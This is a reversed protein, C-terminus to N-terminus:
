AIRDFATPDIGLTELDRNKPRRHNEVAASVSIAASVVALARGIASGRTKRQGFM